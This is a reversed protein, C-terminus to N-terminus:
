VSYITESLPVSKKGQMESVIEAAVTVFAVGSVNLAIFLCFCNM